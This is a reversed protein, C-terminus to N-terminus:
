PIGFCLVWYSGGFVSIEVEQDDLVWRWFRMTVHDSGYRNSLCGLVM